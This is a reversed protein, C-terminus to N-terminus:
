WKPRVDFPDLYDIEKIIKDPLFIGKEQLQLLLMRSANRELHAMVCQEHSPTNVENTTKRNLWVCRKCHYADCIRCLPARQLEYLYSNRINLGTKVGGSELSDANLWSEEKSYYFSPCVYFKGDPMLAVSNIGAECNNMDDLMFRDTLLNCQVLHNRLYEKKVIDSLGSLALRYQEFDADTFEEVNTVVVNVRQAAQLASSLEQWSSLLSEKTLRLVISVNERCFELKLQDFGECVVVSASALLQLDHCTSAVIKVHDIKDIEEVYEQPLCEDPYIFQVSLNHKM